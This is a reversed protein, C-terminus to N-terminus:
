VGLLLSFLLMVMAGVALGAMARGAGGGAIAQPLLEVAVLALMAAGAFGFSFPLLARVQEVLLYSAPAAVPQPISTGVAAWFQRRRSLGAAAMPIAVATGEPVNQIAIALIVFLGLGATDSAYATGIAMGEPLSHVLLVGFVLLGTTGGAGAALQRGTASRKILRKSVLLFAVGVIAGAVVSSAAGQEFGPKLLGAIAAVSMVGAAVGLLLSELGVAEEGLVWVPIAGVGTALATAGGIVTLLLLNLAVSDM